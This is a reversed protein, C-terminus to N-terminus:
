IHSHCELLLTHLPFSFVLGKNYSQVREEGDGPQWPLWGGVVCVYESVSERVHVCVSRETESVTHAHWAGNLKLMLSAYYTCFPTCLAGALCIGKNTEQETGRCGFGLILLALLQLPFHEGLSLGLDGM